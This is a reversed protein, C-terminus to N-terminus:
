AELTNKRSRAYAIAVIIIILALGAWTTYEFLAERPIRRPNLEPQSVRYYWYLIYYCFRDAVFWMAPLSWQILRPLTPKVFTKVNRYLAACTAIACLIFLLPVSSKLLYLKHLGNPSDSGEGSIVSSLAYHSMIDIMIVIFTLLLWGLAFAEIKAKKTESFSQHFIDVRVHSGTTIAYGFGSLMAFGYMWWQADDLWAQNHGFKRIIVQTVIAVMLIPFIWAAINAFNVMLRDGWLHSERGIEGPDSVTVKDGDMGSAESTM